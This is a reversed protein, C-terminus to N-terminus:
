GKEGGWEDEYSNQGCDRNIPIWSYHNL